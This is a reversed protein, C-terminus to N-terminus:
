QRAFDCLCFSVLQDQSLSVSSSSLSKFSYFLAAMKRDGCERIEEAFAARESSLKQHETDLTWFM